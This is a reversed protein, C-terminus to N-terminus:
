QLKCRDEVNEVHAEVAMREREKREKREKKSEKGSSRRTEAVPMPKLVGERELRDAIAACLEKPTKANGVVAVGGGDEVPDVEQVGRRVSRTCARRMAGAVGRRKRWGTRRRPELVGSM